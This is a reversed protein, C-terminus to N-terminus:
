RQGREIKAQANLVDMNDDIYAILSALAATRTWTSYIYLLYTAPVNILAKGKHEKGFVLPSEDNLTSKETLTEMNKSKIPKEYYQDRFRERQISDIKQDVLSDIIASHTKANRLYNVADQAAETRRRRLKRILRNVRWAELIESIYRIM